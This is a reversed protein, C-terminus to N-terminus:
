RRRPQRSPLTRLGVVDPEDVLESDCHTFQTPAHDLRTAEVLDLVERHHLLVFPRRQEDIRGRHEAHDTLTSGLVVVEEGTLRREDEITM